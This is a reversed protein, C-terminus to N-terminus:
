LDVKGMLCQSAFFTFKNKGISDITLLTSLESKFEALRVESDTGYKQM